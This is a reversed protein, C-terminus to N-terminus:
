KEKRRQYENNKLNEKRNLSIMQKLRVLIENNQKKKSLKKRSTRNYKKNKELIVQRQHEQSKRLQESLLIEFPSQSNQKNVQNTETNSSPKTM